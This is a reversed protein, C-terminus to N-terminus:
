PARGPAPKRRRAAIPDGADLRSAIREGDRLEVGVELRLDDDDGCGIEIDEVPRRAAVPKGEVVAGAHPARPEREAVGVPVPPQLDGRPDVVRRASPRRDGDELGPRLGDRTRRRRGPEM